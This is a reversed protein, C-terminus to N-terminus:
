TARQEESLARFEEYDRIYEPEDYHLSALVVVITGSAFEVLETWVMPPIYLGVHPQRLDVTRRESGDDLV